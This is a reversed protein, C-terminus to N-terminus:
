SMVEVVEADIIDAAIVGPEDPEAPPVPEISRYRYDDHPSYRLQRYQTVSSTPRVMASGGQYDVYYTNSGTCYSGTHLFTKALLERCHRSYRETPEWRPETATAGRRQTERMVRVIHYATAEISTIFSGLILNYPGPMMFANPFGPISVGQYSHFLKEDWVAGLDQKDRGIVPFPPTWGKELVRFGSACIIVDFEHEVGDATAIGNETFREISETVLAVDPRKFTQLYRNSVSPRKCGVTYSPTLKEILEPDKLVHKYYAGLVVNGINVAPGVHASLPLIAGQAAQIVAQGYARAALRPLKRNLTFQMWKPIEFDPKPALWIPTRQFVTLKSAIEAVEPIIQLGSAGTGIIGVRKGTLDIRSDWRSSHVKAGRFDELGPIDPFKPVELGGVCNVTYRATIVRTGVGAPAGSTDAITIRWLHNAEDWEMARVETRYSTRRHLDYKTMLDDAYSAIESGSPFFRSWNRHEYSFSYFLSPVDVAVGPYRNVYWVGGPKDWKELFHVDTIGSKLLRMAIGIGSLGAGILVVEHDPRERRTDTRASIGNNLTTTM